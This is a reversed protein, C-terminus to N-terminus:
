LGRSESAPIRVTVRYRDVLREASIAGGVRGWLRLRRRASELGIGMGNTSAADPLSNEICAEIFRDRGRVSVSLWGSRTSAEVGHRIANEVLPQLLMPPCGLDAVNADMDLSVHLREEFRLKQLDLYSRIFHLEDAITTAEGKSSALAYRLLDSLQELGRLAKDSRTTRVMAGIAGLANFLFHPELQAQLVALRQQELELRLANNELEIRHREQVAMRRQQLTVVAFVALYNGSYLVMEWLWSVLPERALLAFMSLGQSSAGSFRTVMWAEYPVLFLFVGAVFSLALSRAAAMTSGTSRRLWLHLALTFIVWPGHRILNDVLGALVEVERGGRSVDLQKAITFALVLLARVAVHGLILRRSDHWFGVVASLTPPQREPKMPAAGQEVSEDSPRLGNRHSFQASRMRECARGRELM